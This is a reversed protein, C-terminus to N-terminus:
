KTSKTKQIQWLRACEKMIDSQSVKPDRVGRQKQEKVMRERITKSQEKVFMNYPRVQKKVTNKENSGGGKKDVLYLKGRCIGCLHRNVDVSKSHRKVVFKCGPVTCCWTYKYEIEYNHTTTVVAGPVHRMAISAWKKFCKGHPPKSVGDIIWAAAHHLLSSPFIM